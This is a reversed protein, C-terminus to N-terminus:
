NADATVSSAYTLGRVFTGRQVQEATVVPTTRIEVAAGAVPKQDPGVVTLEFTQQKADDEDAAPLVRIALALWALAACSSVFCSLRMVVAVLRRDSPCVVAKRM